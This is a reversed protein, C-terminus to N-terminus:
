GAQGGGHNISKGVQGGVGIPASLLREVAEQGTGNGLFDEDIHTNVQLSDPFLAGVEVSLLDAIILFTGLLPFAKLCVGDELVLFNVSHDLCTNFAKSRHLISIASPAPEM